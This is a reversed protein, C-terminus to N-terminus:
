RLTFVGDDDTKTAQQSREPPKGQPGQPHHKNTELDRLRKELSRAVRVLESTNASISFLKLQAVIFFISLVVIALYVLFEIM